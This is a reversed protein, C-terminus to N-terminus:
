PATSGLALEARSASFLFGTFLGVVNGILAADAIGSRSTDPSLNHIVGGAAAGLVTGVLGGILVGSTRHAQDIADHFDVKADVAPETWSGTLSASASWGALAGLMTGLGIREYFGSPAGGIAGGGAGGLAAGELLSLSLMSRALSVLLAPPPLPALIDPVPAITLAPQSLAIQRETEPKLLAFRLADLRPQDSAPRAPEPRMRDQEAGSLAKQAAPGVAILPEMRNMERDLAAGRLSRRGPAALFAPPPMLWAAVGGVVAGLPIAAWVPRSNRDVPRNVLAGVGFGALEGALIGVCAAAERTPPPRLGPEPPTEEVSARGIAHGLVAGFATGVGGWRLFPTVRSADLPRSLGGLSFGLAAGGAAGLFTAAGTWTDQPEIDAVAPAALVSLALAAILNRIARGVPALTM